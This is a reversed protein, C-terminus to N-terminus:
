GKTSFGKERLVCEAYIERKIERCRRKDAPDDTIENIVHRRFEFLLAGTRDDSGPKEAALTYDADNDGHYGGQLYDCLAYIYLVFSGTEPLKTYKPKCRVQCM